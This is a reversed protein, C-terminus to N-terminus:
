HNYMDKNYFNLINILSQYAETAPSEPDFEMAKRYNNLAEAFNGKKRYANGLLYYLEAKNNQRDITEQTAYTNLTRIALDIQYGETIDKKIRKLNDM